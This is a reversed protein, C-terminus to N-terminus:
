RRVRRRLAAVADASLGCQVVESDFSAADASGALWCNLRTTVSSNVFDELAPYIAHVEQMLAPTNRLRYKQHYDEALTFGSFEELATNVPSYM